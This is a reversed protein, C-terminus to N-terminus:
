DESRDKHQLREEKSRELNDKLEEKDVKLLRNALDKFREFPTRVDPKDHTVDAM